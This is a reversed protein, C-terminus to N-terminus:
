FRTNTMRVEYQQREMTPYPNWVSASSDPFLGKKITSAHGDLFLWNTASKGDGGHRLNIHNFNGWTILGMGDAIFGVASPQEVMSEKAYGVLPLAPPAPNDVWRGPFWLGSPVPSVWSMSWTSGSNNDESSMFYNCYYTHTNTTDTSSLYSASAVDTQSSPGTWWNEARDLGAPCMFPQSQQGSKKSDVGNIYGLEALEVWWFRTGYKTTDHGFPMIVQQYDSAYAAFALSIGKMQALCRAAKAQNRAGGLAPLLIAILLSIIAVVVLLEILTFAARRCRLVM